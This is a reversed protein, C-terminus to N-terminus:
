RRKKNPFGSGSGGSKANHSHTRPHGKVGFMDHDPGKSVRFEFAGAEDAGFTPNRQGRAKKALEKDDFYSVPTTNVQFLRKM